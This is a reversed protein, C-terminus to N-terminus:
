VRVLAFFTPIFALRSGAEIAAWDAAKLRALEDSPVVGALSREWLAWEDHFEARLAVPNWLGPMVGVDVERVGPLAFLERM